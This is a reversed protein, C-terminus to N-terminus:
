AADFPYMGFTPPLDVIRDGPSLFLRMILDILEDAGASALLNEAPVGTDKALAQRLLTSEPDPYIHPWPMEALAARVKPSPGYPNENADLKIIEEPKRGLRASLVEFPLIPTYPEM